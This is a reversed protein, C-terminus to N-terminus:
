DWEKMNQWNRKIPHTAVIYRIVNRLNLILFDKLCRHFFWFSNILKKVVTKNQNARFLKHKLFYIKSPNSFDFLCQKQKKLKVRRISHLLTLTSFFRNEKGDDNSRKKSFRFFCATKLFDEADLFFRDWFNQRFSEPDIYFDPLWVTTLFTKRQCASSKLGTRFSDKQNSFLFNELEFLQLPLHEFVKWPSVFIVFSDLFFVKELLGSDRVTRSFFVKKNKWFVRKEALRNSLNICVFRKRLM